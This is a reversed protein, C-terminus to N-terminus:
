QVQGSDGNPTTAGGPVTANTNSTPKTTGAPGANTGSSNGGSDGAVPSGKFSDAVTVGNVSHGDRKCDLVIEDISGAQDDDLESLSTSGTDSQAYQLVFADTCFTDNSTPDTFGALEADGVPAGAANCAADFAADRLILSQAHGANIKLLLTVTFLAIWFIPM